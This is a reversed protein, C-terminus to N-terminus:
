RTPGAVFAVYSHIDWRTLLECTSGIEFKTPREIPWNVRFQACAFQERAPIDMGVDSKNRASSTISHGRKRCQVLRFHCLASM